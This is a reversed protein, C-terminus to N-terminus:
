FILLPVIFNITAKKLNIERYDDAVLDANSLEKKTHTTTIAVVKMGAAKGAKV